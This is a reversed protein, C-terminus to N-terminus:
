AANSLEGEHEKGTLLAGGREIEDEMAVLSGIDCASARAEEAGGTDDRLEALCRKAAEQAAQRARDFWQARQNGALEAIDLELTAAASSSVGDERLRILERGAGLLAIAAELVAIDDPRDPSLHSRLQDFAETMSAEFESLGIRRRPWAIRALVRRATRVFRRRAAEPTAPAVIAWLVMAVGAAAVAAISTNLLGVSDYAMRDQFLGGSAFLLASFFGIVYTRKYAMLFACLFLMPAVVLAFMEFGSALPLLIEVIVFTPITSLSFILTAAVAIPVAHEMTALRATAVASLIAATSGHPWDVLIWFGSVFFVAVAARLGAWLAGVSDNSHAFGIRRSAPNEGSVFNEYAEAYATLAALFERLRSIVAINRIVEEDPASPDRSLQRVLPLRARARVFRQELGSADLGAARWANIAAIAEAIGDEVGTEVARTTRGVEDLQSRLLHAVGVVGILAVDLVRLSASRDRIERDEFIASARLNEIAIVQGSLKAQLPAIDGASFLAVAYDCLTARGDAVAQRLTAGLSSPLVVHSITATAIIGLSIETVRATAVYFASAADLAGPIGVIAVTYGSLVFSYAAFNRAYQSGFACMGVWLALASLFLVREQAFLAVFLLAVAAGIFTGIIRYFSKALVLGSQPQAVIFVTLLAWQPQDLNFTFAVLLAILGSATTKAAFIWPM